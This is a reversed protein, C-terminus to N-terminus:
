VDTVEKKDVKKFFWQLEVGAEVGDAALVKNLEDIMKRVRPEIARDVLKIVKKM